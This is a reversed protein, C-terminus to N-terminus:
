GDKEERGYLARSFNVVAQEELLLAEDVLTTKIGECGPVLEVLRGIFQRLPSLVLHSVEHIIHEEKEEDPCLESVYLSGQLYGFDYDIGMVTNPSSMEEKPLNTWIEMQWHGQGLLILWKTLCEKIQTKNVVIVM